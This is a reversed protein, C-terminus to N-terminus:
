AEGRLFACLGTYRLMRRNNEVMALLRQEEGVIVLLKRARTMATYLLNRYCLKPSFDGLALVVASFESGQSKHVTIAYAPELQAAQEATYTIHRDDFLVSITHARMDIREISGLDGNFSGRGSEGNNKKWEIDYNNRSQMVRDGERLLRGMIRVEARDKTRPNLRERLANGLNETGLLGKRSPTLVQIDTMPDLKYSAPLRRAVLDCIVDVAAEPARRLMFFDSDVSTLDPQEGDMVRHANMVILSQQAQRFVKKFEVTEVTGSSIIDRLVNGAGVSPLQHFDGVMVLRCQPRLGRLLSEFLQADVMSMEDIVAVDCKLPNHEHHTFVIDDGSGPQVELLRHITKADRETLESLRKAARGTPACLAVQEGENECLEIIARLTTTKGTGPGGTIVVAGQTMAREIAHRQLLDYEMGSRSEFGDILSSADDPSRFKLSRLLNLREAIFREARMMPPLFIMERNNIIAINLFGKDISEYLEIEVSDHSVDLFARVRDILVDAPVCTHGNDLNHRLTFVIGARLRDPHEGAIDFQSALSDAFAFDLMAPEGCLIYPNSKVTEPATEAWVRYLKLSTDTDLGLEALRSLTERVGYIRKFETSIAQAKAASIGKIATLREPSHAIIELTEEGFSEVMRRAITPGIGPIAGGALYRKIATASSPLMHECAAASFQVGYTPHNSYSGWVAIQEGVTVGFLSGTVTVLEGNVDLDVVMYGNSENCFLINDVVGDLRETEAENKMSM